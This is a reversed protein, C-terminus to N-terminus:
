HQTGSHWITTGDHVVAVDGDARLILTAGNHGDTRTSWATAGDQTYVAFNGDAQFVTKYGRGATGASWRVHNNEDRIVLDGDSTMALSTRNSHWAQGSTLVSTARVVVTTWSKAAARKPTATATASATASPASSKPSGGSDPTGSASAALGDSQKDSLLSPSATGSPAAGDSGPAGTQLDDGSASPGHSAANGSGSLLVATGIGLVLLLAVGILAPKGARLRWSSASTRAPAADEDPEDRLNAPISALARAARAAEPDFLPSVGGTGSRGSRRASPGTTERRSPRAGEGRPEGADPGEDTTM